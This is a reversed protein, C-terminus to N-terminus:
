VNQEWCRRGKAKYSQM